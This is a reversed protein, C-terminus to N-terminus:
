APFPHQCIFYLCDHLDCCSTPVVVGVVGRGVIVESFQSLVEDGEVLYRYNGKMLGCIV